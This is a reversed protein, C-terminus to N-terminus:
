AAAEAFRTEYLAAMLDSQSIIGALRDQDDLIPIHHYGADAMLPVLDIIPTGLRAAHPKHTMLQGVVEPRETHSLGSRQLIARLRHRMGEYDDLGGHRLFDTQTIIGIVRRARNLVPLAGIDHQRMTRWAEDLPTGFEVHLVDKSMIDACTVVGFRRQWARLETQLFIAQLDDRSIDLVESHQRLVADLDDATFGLRASPVEDDTAHPHAPALQQSHPYRRGTLNNYLVACAVLIASNFLVTVFVFEFGAAHVSAGGVVTTLAVAGGPPHLCRLAFMAAIALCAALAAVGVGPGFWKVCAAGMLGSVVNGGVVSWPQALPSAPLCFLLVASAGMPAILYISASNPALLFHCTVGTLLLGCIAGACARLQERRSGNNPQPLWRALFSTTM